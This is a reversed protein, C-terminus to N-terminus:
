PQPEVMVLEARNEVGAKVLFQIWESQPYNKENWTGTIFAQLEQLHPPTLKFTGFPQWAPFDPHVFALDPLPQSPRELKLKTLLNILKSFGPSLHGTFHKQSGYGEFSKTDLKFQRYEEKLGMLADTLNSVAQKNVPNLYLHKDLIHWAEFPREEDQDLIRPDFKLIEAESLPKPFFYAPHKLLDRGFVTSSNRIVLTGQEPNTVLLYGRRFEFKNQSSPDTYLFGKGFIDNHPRTDPAPKFGFEQFLSTKGLAGPAISKSGSSSSVSMTDFRWFRYAHTLFGIDGWTKLMADSLEVQPHEIYRTISTLALTLPKTKEPDRDFLDPHKLLLMFEAENPHYGRKDDNHDYFHEINWLFRDFLKFPMEFMPPILQIFYKVSPNDPNLSQQAKYWQTFTQSFESPQAGKQILQNYQETQLNLAAYDVLTKGNPLPLHIDAGKAIFLNALDWKGLHIALHLATLGEKNVPSLSAGASLLGKALNYDNPYANPANLLLMLATEGRDNVTNIINKSPKKSQELLLQSMAFRNGSNAAIHIGTDGEGSVKDWQAGLNLLISFLPDNNAAIAFA